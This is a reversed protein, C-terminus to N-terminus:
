GFCASTSVVTIDTLATSSNGSFDTATITITVLESENDAVTLFPFPGFTGSYGDSGSMTASGGAGGQFQWSLAVSAVGGNDIVQATVTALRPNTGCSLAETDLEWIPNPAISERAITPPTTDPVRTTGTTTPAATTVSTEVPVTTDVVAATTVTTVPPVTSTTAVTTVSAPNSDFVGSSNLGVGILGGLIATMVFWLAIRTGRALGGGGAGGASGGGSARSMLDDFLADPDIPPDDPIANQLERRLRDDFTM